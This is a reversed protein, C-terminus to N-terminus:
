GEIPDLDEIRRIRRDRDIHSYAEKLPVLTRAAWFALRFDDSDLFQLLKRTGQLSAYIHLDFAKEILEDRSIAVQRAFEPDQLWRHVTSRDAGIRRAVESVAAGTALQAIAWQKRAHTPKWAGKRASGETKKVTPPPLVLADERVDLPQAEAFEHVITEDEGTAPKRAGSVPVARSPVTVRAGM